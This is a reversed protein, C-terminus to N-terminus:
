GLSLCRELFSTAVIYGRDRAQKLRRNMTPESVGRYQAIQRAKLELVCYDYAALLIDREKKDVNM